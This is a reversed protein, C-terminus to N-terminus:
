IVVLTLSGGIGHFVMSISVGSVRWQWQSGSHRGEINRLLHTSGLAFMADVVLLWINPPVAKDTPRGKRYSAFVVHLV